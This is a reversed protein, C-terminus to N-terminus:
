IEIGDSRPFGERQTIAQPGLIRNARPRERRFDVFIVRGFHSRGCLRNFQLNPGALDWIKPIKAAHNGLMGLVAHQRARPKFFSVCICDSASGRRPATQAPLPEQQCRVHV